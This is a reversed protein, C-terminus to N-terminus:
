GITDFVDADFPLGLGSNYLRDIDNSSLIRGKWFGFQSMDADVFASTGNYGLNFSLEPDAPASSVSSETATGGNVVIGVKSTIRNYYCVVHYWNGELIIVPSIATFTAIASRISFSVADTTDNYSLLYSGGTGYKALLGGTQDAANGPIRFFGAFCFSENAIRNWPQAPLLGRESNAKTFRRAQVGNPGDVVSSVTNTDILDHGNIVDLMNGSAEDLPWYATLNNILPLNDFYQIYEAGISFSGTGIFRNNSVLFTNDPGVPNGRLDIFSITSGIVNLTNIVNDEIRLRKCNGTCRVFVSTRSFSGPPVDTGWIIENGKITIDEISVNDVSGGTADPDLGVYIGVSRCNTMINNEIIIRKFFQRDSLSSIAIPNAYGYDIYNNRIIVDQWGIFESGNATLQRDRALMKCNEVIVNRSPLDYYFGSDSVFSICWSDGSHSVTTPTGVVTATKGGTGGTISDGPDVNEVAGSLAVATFTGTAGNDTVTFITATIGGTFTVVEGEVFATGSGSGFNVTIDRASTLNRRSDDSDIFTLNRFRIDRIPNDPASGIVTPVSSVTATVGSLTGTITDSNTPVSGTMPLVRMSKTTLTGNVSATAGSTLGDITNNNTINGHLRSITLTGSTDNGTKATIVATSGDGFLLREGVTFSGPGTGGPGAAGTDFSFVGGFDMLKGTEGGTFTLTEHQRLGVGTTYNFNWAAGDGTYFGGTVHSFFTQFPFWVEGNKFDCIFNEFTIDAGQIFICGQQGPPHIITAPNDPDTTITVGTPIRIGEDLQWVSGAPLVVRRNQNAFVGVQEALEDHGHYTRVQIRRDYNGQSLNPRALLPQYGDQILAPTDTFRRSGPHNKNYNTLDYIDATVRRDISFSSADIGSNNYNGVITISEYANAVDNVGVIALGTSTSGDFDAYCEITGGVGSKNSGDIRILGASSETFNASTILGNFKVGAQILVNQPNPIVWMSEFVSTGLGVGSQIQTVTCDGALVEFRRLNEPFIVQSSTVNSITKPLAIRVVDDTFNNKAIDLIPTIDQGESLGLYEFDFLTRDLRVIKGTQGVEPDLVFYGDTEPVPDLGFDDIYKYTGAPGDISSDEGSLDVIEGPALVPKAGTLTIEKRDGTALGALSIITDQGEEDTYIMDYSMDDYSLVTLSETIPEGMLGSLDLVTQDGNEDIYELSQTEADYSIETITEDIDVVTGNGDHHTAIRHGEIVNTIVSPDSVVGNANFVTVTGDESTFTHIGGGNHVLTSISEEINVINGTGDDHTAIVRSGESLPAIPTVISTHGEATIDVIASGPTVTINVSSDSSWFHIIDGVVMATVGNVSDEVDATDGSNISFISCTGDQIISCVNIITETGGANIYTFTGDENDVISGNADFTTITAAENTHTFTGDGNDILTTIVENGFEGNNCMDALCRLVEFNDNLISTVCSTVHGAPICQVSDASPCNTCPVRAANNCFCKKNPPM